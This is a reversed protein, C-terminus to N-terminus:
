ICPPEYNILRRWLVMRPVLGQDPGTFYKNSAEALTPVLVLLVEWWLFGCKKGRGYLGIKYLNLIVVVDHRM